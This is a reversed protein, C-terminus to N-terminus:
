ADFWQRACLCRIVHVWALAIYVVAQQDAFILPVELHVNDLLNPRFDFSLINEDNKLTM